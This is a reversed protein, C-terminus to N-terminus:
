KEEKSILFEFYFTTFLCGYKNAHLECKNLTEGENFIEYQDFEGPLYRESLNIMDKTNTFVQINLKKNEKSYKPVYNYLEKNNHESMYLKFDKVNNDSFWDSLINLADNNIYKYSKLVDILLTEEETLDPKSNVSKNVKLKEIIYQTISKM